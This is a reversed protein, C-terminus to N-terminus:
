EWYRPCHQRYAALRAAAEGPLSAPVADFTTLEVHDSAGHLQAFEYGGILHHYSCSAGGPAPYCKGHYKVISHDFVGHRAWAQRLMWDSDCDFAPLVPMRDQLAAAAIVRLIFAAADARSKIGAAAVLDPSVTLYKRTFGLLAERRWAGAAVMLARRGVHTWEKGGWDASCAVLHILASSHWGAHASDCHGFVWEPAVAFKEMLREGEAGPAPDTADLPIRLELYDLQKESLVETRYRQWAAMCAAEEEGEAAANDCPSPGSAAPQYSYRESSRQFECYWRQGQAGRVSLEAATKGFVPSVTKWFPHNHAGEGTVAAGPLYPFPYRAPRRAPRAGYVSPMDYVSSNCGADNLNDNLLAQDMMTGLNAGDRHLTDVILNATRMVHSHIWFAPSVEAQVHQMYFLGGNAFGERLHILKVDALPPAKLEPYPDRYIITDLDMMLVNLGARALSTCAHYRQIWLAMVNLAGQKAWGPSESAGPYSTWVCSAARVHEVLTECQKEDPALAVYHEFGVHHLQQAMNVSWDLWNANFAFVVIEGEWAKREVLAALVDPQAIDGRVHQM